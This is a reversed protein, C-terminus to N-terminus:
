NRKKEVFFVKWTVFPDADDVDITNKLQYELKYQVIGMYIDADLLNKTISLFIM